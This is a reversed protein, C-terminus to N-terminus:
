EAKLSPLALPEGSRLSREGAPVAQERRAIRAQYAKPVLILTWTGGVDSPLSRISRLQARRTQHSLGAIAIDVTSVLRRTTRGVALGPSM